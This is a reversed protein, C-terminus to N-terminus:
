RVFMTEDLFCIKITSRQATEMLDTSPDLFPIFRNLEKTVNGLLFRGWTTTEEAASHQESHCYTGYGGSVATNTVTSSRYVKRVEKVWLLRQTCLLNISCETSNDFPIIQKELALALYKHCKM